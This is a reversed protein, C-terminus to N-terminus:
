NKDIVFCTLFSMLLVNKLTINVSILSSTKILSSYLIRNDTAYLCHYFCTMLSSISAYVFYKHESPSSEQAIKFVQVFDKLNQILDYLMITFSIFM